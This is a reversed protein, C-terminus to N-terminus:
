ARLGRLRIEVRAPRTPSALSLFDRVRGFTGCFPCEIADTVRLPRDGPSVPADCHSCALTGTALVGSHGPRIEEHAV